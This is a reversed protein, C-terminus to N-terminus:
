LKYPVYVTKNNNSYVSVLTYDTYGCRLLNQFIIVYYEYSYLCIILCFFFFLKIKLYNKYEILKLLFIITTMKISLSIKIIYFFVGM